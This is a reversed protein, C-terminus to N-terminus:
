TRWSADARRKRHHVSCPTAAAMTWRRRALPEANGGAIHFIQLVADPQLRTKREILERGDGQALLRM